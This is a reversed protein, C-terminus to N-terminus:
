LFHFDKNIKSIFQGYFMKLLNKSQITDSASFCLAKYSKIPLSDSESLQVTQEIRKYYPVSVQLPFRLWFSCVFRNEYSNISKTTAWRLVFEIKSSGLFLSPIASNRKKFIYPLSFTFAGNSPYLGMPGYTREKESWFKYFPSQIKLWALYGFSTISHEM